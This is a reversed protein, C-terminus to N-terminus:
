AEFRSKIRNFLLYFLVSFAASYVAVPLTQRLFLIWVREYGWQGYFLFFSLIRRILMAALCLLVASILKRKMYYIVLLAASVGMLMAVLGNFGFIEAGSVDCFLGAAACFIGGAFEGELVAICIAAPITFIPKIGAVSLFGPTSQLVALLVIILSYLVYKLVTKNKVSM